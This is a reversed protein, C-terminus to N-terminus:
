SMSCQNKYKAQGYSSIVFLAEVLSQLLSVLIIIKKIVLMTEPSPKTGLLHGIM